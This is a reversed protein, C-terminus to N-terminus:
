MPKTRCGGTTDEDVTAVDENPEPDKDTRKVTVTGSYYVGDKMGGVPVQCPCTALMHLYQSHCQKCQMHTGVDLLMAGHKTNITMKGGLPVDVLIDPLGASERNQVAVAAMAAFFALAVLGIPLIRLPASREGERAM